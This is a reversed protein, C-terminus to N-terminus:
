LMLVMSTSQVEIGLFYHIIGLDHLKFELSPLQILCHLLLSNSTMFMIDDVYVMLYCIDTGISFIFLSTDV